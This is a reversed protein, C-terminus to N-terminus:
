TTAAQRRLRLYAAVDKRDGSQAAQRAATALQGTASADPTRASASSPPLTAAGAVSLFPKDLLLQEVGASLKEEDLTEAFDLRKSLLLSATEHDVVGAANLMREAALRNETVTLHTVAEDRLAEAQALEEGHRDLDSHAGELQQELQQIRSEAQQARRRYKIAEAVPVQKAGGAIVDEDTLTETSEDPM